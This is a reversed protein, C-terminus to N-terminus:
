KLRKIRYTFVKGSEKMEILENGTRKCWAPIDEKSGIDDSVLEFEHGIEVTKIKKALQVIPM